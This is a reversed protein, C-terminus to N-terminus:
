QFSQIKNESDSTSILGDGSWFKEQVIQLSIIISPIYTLIPLGFISGKPSRFHTGCVAPFEVFSVKKKGYRGAKQLAPIIHIVFLETTSNSWIL